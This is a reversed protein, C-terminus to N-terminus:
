GRALALEVREGMREFDLDPYEGIEEVLIAHLEHVRGLNGKYNKLGHLYETCSERNFWVKLERLRQERYLAIGKFVMSFATYVAATHPHGDSELFARMKDLIKARDQANLAADKVQNPYGRFLLENFEHWAEKYQGAQQLLAPLLFYTDVPFARNERRIAEWAQRALRIATELEGSERCNAAQELLDDAKSRPPPPLTPKPLAPNSKPIPKAVGPHSGSTSGTDWVDALKPRAYPVTLPQGCKLCKVKAGGKDEPAKLEYHCRSCSFVITM